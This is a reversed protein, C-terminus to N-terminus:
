FDVIFEEHVIWTMFFGPNWSDMGGVKKCSLM